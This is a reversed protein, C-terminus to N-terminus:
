AHSLLRNRRLRRRSWHETIAQSFNPHVVKARATTRGDAEKRVILGEMPGRGVRSGGELLAMLREMSFNGSGLRPVAEFGVNSLFEDRRASDWFFAGKRDYVDFGFFWDPLRDYFVSHLAYCWEGFLILSPTLAEVLNRERPGLWQWLPRFQASAELRGVYSGRSQAQIRGDPGISMGVNAGDIKEEVVVETALVEQAARRSLIKDERPRGRGLWTLHPTHPYRYFPFTM